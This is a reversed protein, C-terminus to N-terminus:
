EAPAQKAKATSLLEMIDALDKKYQPQEVLVASIVTDPMAIKKPHRDKTSHPRHWQVTPDAGYELFVKVTSIWGEWFFRQGSFPSFLGDQLLGAWATLDGESAMASNSEGDRCNPDVGEQLLMKSLEASPTGRIIQFQREVRWKLEQFRTARLLLSQLQPRPIDKGRIKAEAYPLLDILIALELFNKFTFNDSNPKKQESPRLFLEVWSIDAIHSRGSSMILGEKWDRILRDGANDLEDLLGVYHDSHIFSRALLGACGVASRLLECGRSPIHLAVYPDPNGNELRKLVQLDQQTDSRIAAERCCKLRRVFGSLLALDLDSEGVFGASNRFIENWLYKRSMFEKATQHMFQVNENGELLGGCRSKLCRHLVKWQPRSEEWSKLLFKDNQARLNQKSDAELHGPEALFLTIIDLPRYFDDLGKVLQFLRKSEPLYQRKINEMMRMYLGGRGGLKSPLSDLTKLLEEKSNGDNSGDALMDIVPRVWLFVGRSKGTISSVFDSCDLLEPAEDTLRGECYHRISEEHVQLRSFNHFKQEFVTLERSSICVKVNSRNRFQLLFDAIEIHGCTIWTSRGWAEDENNGDYILDMEEETYENIRDIICYEDLSDLFLCLKSDQLYDLM